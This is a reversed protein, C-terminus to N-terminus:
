IVTKMSHGAIPRTVITVEEDKGEDHHIYLSKKAEIPVRCMPCRTLEIGGCEHCVCIHFCPVLQMQAKSDICVSCSGTSDAIPPAAISSEKAQNDPLAPTCPTNDSSSSCTMKRKVMGRSPARMEISEAITQLADSEWNRAMVPDESCQEVMQLLTPLHKEMAAVDGADMAEVLEPICDDQDPQITSPRQPPSSSSASENNSKCNQILSDITAAKKSM